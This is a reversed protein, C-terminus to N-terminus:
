VGTYATFSIQARVLNPTAAHAAIRANDPSTCLYSSLADDDRERLMFAGADFAHDLFTQWPSDGFDRTINPINLTLTNAEARKIVAVPAAQDNRTTLFNQHRTLWDRRYGAQEGGAVAGTLGGPNPVDIAQGAAVFAVIGRFGSVTKTYIIEIRNVLSIEDFTVMVDHSRGASFSVVGKSVTNVKIEISGADDGFNHGSVAVYSGPFRNSGSFTKLITFTSATGASSYLADFGFNEINDIDQAADDDSTVSLAGTNAFRNNTSLKM